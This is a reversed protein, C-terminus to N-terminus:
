AKAAPRPAKAAPRPAKAAPRPAKAAHDLAAILESATAYRGSRDKATMRELIRAVAMPADGRIKRISPLPESAVAAAVAVPNAGTFPRQGALMEFLAVGLSFIDARCDIDAESRIQEPAVYAPTGVFPKGGPEADKGIMKALGFDAVRVRGDRDILINDPKIDRHILGREQAHELARAVDTAIALAQSVPLPGERAILQALSEGDVFEMAFYYYGQSEGVDIAAVINPHSLRGAARAERLFRQVFRENQGLRPALVKLAVDRGLDKQTARFVSGMGGQGIKEILEFGSLEKPIRTTTKTAAIAQRVRGVTPEDILGQRLLMAEASATGGLGEIDVLAQLARDGQEQTLHGSAVAFRVFEQDQPTPM